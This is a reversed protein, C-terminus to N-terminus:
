SRVKSWTKNIKAERGLKDHLPFSSDIWTQIILSLLYDLQESNFKTAAIGIIIYLNDVLSMSM